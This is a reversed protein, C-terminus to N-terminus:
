DNKATEDLDAGIYSVLFDPYEAQVKKMDSPVPELAESANYMAKSIGKGFTLCGPIDPFSVNLIEKDDEEPEFFAPCVAYSEASM